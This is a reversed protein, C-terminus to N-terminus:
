DGFFPFVVEAPRELEIALLVVGLKGKLLSQPPGSMAALERAAGTALKEARLLWLNEGSRRYLDLLSFARGALGCCLDPTSAPEDWAVAGAASALDGFRSGPLVVEALGWLLVFGAAGDCWGAGPVRFDQARRRWASGRGLPQALAALEELRERVAMPPAASTAECWRLASYLRGAWGHAMGLPSRGVAIAPQREIDDVLEKLLQEGTPRVRADASGAGAIQSLALLAGARGILLDECAMPREIAALFRRVAAASMEQDGRARAVQAVVAFVGSPGLLTSTEGIIAADLGLAPAYFGEPEEVQSLARTAWLDAIALLRPAERVMAARLLVYAVGAAGYGLSASPAKLGDLWWPGDLESQIALQDGLDRLSEPLAPARPLPQLPELLSGIEDALADLSPFRGTPEKALGRRLIAELQPWPAAGRAAFPLPDEGVIQELLRRRELQFDLYPYGTVMLYLLACVAYQEGLLSAPPPPKEALEAQAYEPEFFFAVGARQPETSGPLRALGFDLLTVRGDADVLVNRGHVDGHVVERAHLGGYASAVAHCLGLLRQRSAADDRERWERAASVPDIGSRWELLLWRGQEVNGQAMLAPAPEGALHALVVVERALSGAGTRTGNREVKLAAVAGGDLRLQHVEGDDAAAVPHLITGGALRDGPQLLLGASLAAATAESM